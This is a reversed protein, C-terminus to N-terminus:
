AAQSTGGLGTLVRRAVATLRAASHGRRPALAHRGRSRFRFRTDRRAQSRPRSPWNQALYYFTAPRM